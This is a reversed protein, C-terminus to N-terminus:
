YPKQMHLSDRQKTIVRYSHITQDLKRNMPDRGIMKMIMSVPFLILYFFVFLVVRNMVWGIVIGFKMWLMYVPNLSRPLVLGWFILIGGIVYPWLSVKAGIVFPIILGFLVIFIAGTLLGFDRLGKKDLAPIDNQM